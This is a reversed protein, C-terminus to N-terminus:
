RSLATVAAQYRELTKEVVEHPLEPGPAAKNWAGRAVLTELYERVFQKDYSAQARGPAYGDRPWFRSSDPTLAEDILIPDRSIVEGRADVPFGFEFKTDALIIGRSLAHESAASYIALSRSRLTEM